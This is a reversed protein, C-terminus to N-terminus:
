KEALTKLNALGTVFDGGIMKDMNFLTGMLKSVYNNPGRMSWTVSTSDGHPVFTFAATDHGVMPKTFDLSMQISAPTSEFIAIRGAGAKSNGEWNYVAGQGSPAGSYTRKMAPDLKEYPSWSSWQHFDNVYAAIKEPPAKIMATREIQFHDPRTAAFVLFGIIIVLVVLAIKKLM